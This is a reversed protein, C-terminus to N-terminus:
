YTYTTVFPESMAGYNVTEKIVRNSSDFEYTYVQQSGDSSTETSLLNRSPNGFLANEPTYRTELKDTLYTYTYTETNGNSNVMVSTLNGDTYTYTSIEGDLNINTLRGDANYTYAVTSGDETYQVIRGDANVQATQTEENGQADKIVVTVQGGAYTYVAYSGDSEDARTVRRQADYTYTSTSGDITETRVNTLAAQSNPEPSDTEKECGTLVVTTCFAIASAWTLQYIRTKM